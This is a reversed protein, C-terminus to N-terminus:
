QLYNRTGVLRIHASISLCIQSRWINYVYRYLMGEDDDLRKWDLRGYLWIAM